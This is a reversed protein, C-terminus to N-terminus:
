ASIVSWRKATAIAIDSADLLAYVTANLKLTADNVDPDDPAALNNIINMVSQKTINRFDSTNSSTFDLLHHISLGTSKFAKGLNIFGGITTLGTQYSFAFYVNEVNSWDYQPVTTIHRNARAGATFMREVSVASSMDINPATTFTHQPSSIGSIAFASEFNQVSSFDMSNIYTDVFSQSLASNSFMNRVDTTHSLDIDGIHKLSTCGSFMGIADAAYGNPCSIDGVYELNSCSSFMNRFTPTASTLTFNPM